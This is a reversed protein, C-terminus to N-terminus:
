YHENKCLKINNLFNGVESEYEIVSTYPKNIKKMIDELLIGKKDLYRKLDPNFLNLYTENYYCKKKKYYLNCIKYIGNNINIDKERRRKLLYDTILASFIGMISSTIVYLIEM